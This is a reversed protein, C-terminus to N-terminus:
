FVLVFNLEGSVLCLAILLSQDQDSAYPTLDSLTFLCTMWKVIYKWCVLGGGKKCWWLMALKDM